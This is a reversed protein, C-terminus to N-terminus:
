GTPIPLVLQATLAYSPIPRLLYHLRLSRTAFPRPSVCGSSTLVGGGLKNVLDLIIGHHSVDVGVLARVIPGLMDHSM